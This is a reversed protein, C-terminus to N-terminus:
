HTPQTKFKQYQEETLLGNAEKLDSCEMEFLWGEECPSQNVLEPRKGLEENIKVIKGSVPAYIDFAAKVSEVIMASQKQKLLAGPKPLEVFVVDSIERQAHDTIGVRALNGNLSVWEHTETYRLKSTDM